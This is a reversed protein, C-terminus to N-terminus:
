TTCTMILTYTGAPVIYNSSIYIGLNGSSLARLSVNWGTGSLKTACAMFGLASASTSYYFWGYRTVNTSGVNHNTQFLSHVYKAASAVVTNPVMLITFGDDAYHSKIFSDGTLLTKETNTWNSSVTVTRVVTKEASTPVNVVASAYNTVDHTGNATINISGSPTIGSAPVNVSARSFEAIDYEGNVTISKTGSPKYYGDPVPVNVAASAYNTVDHTGNATITKTGTPTIGTSIRGIMDPFDDAVIKGSGGTKSRISNAIATFLASLTTYKAM